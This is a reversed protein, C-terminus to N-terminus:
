MLSEALRKLKGKVSGDIVTDGAKIIAGGILTQNVTSKVSVERGLRKKLSEKIKQVYDADLAFASEVNVDIVREHNSKLTEFIEQIQPLVDLRGNDALLTFFHKLETDESAESLTLLLGVKDSQGVKPSHIVRKVLPQQVVSKCQTLFLSWDVLKGSGLAFEFAARAYPRAITTKEAM